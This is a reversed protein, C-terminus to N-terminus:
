VVMSTSFWLFLAQWFRGFVIPSFMGVAKWDFYMFVLFKGNHMVNFSSEWKKNFEYM